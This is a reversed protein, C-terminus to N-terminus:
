IEEKAKRKLYEAVGLNIIERAMDEDIFAVQIEEGYEASIKRAYDTIVKKIYEDEKNVVEAIMRSTLSYVGNEGEIKM